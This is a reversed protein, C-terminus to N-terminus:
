EAVVPAGEVQHRPRRMLLVLPVMLVFVLALLRFGDLFSILAAQRQVMGYLAAYARQTATAADAGRALFAARLSTLAIQGQLSYPDV